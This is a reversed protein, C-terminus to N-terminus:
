RKSNKGWGEEFKSSENGVNNSRDMNWGSPLEAEPVRQFQHKHILTHFPNDNGSSLTRPALFRYPVRGGTSIWAGRKLNFPNAVVRISVIIDRPYSHPDEEVEEEAESKDEEELKPDQPDDKLPDKGKNNKTSVM